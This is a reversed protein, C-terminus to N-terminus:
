NDLVREGPDKRRQSWSCAEILTLDKSNLSPKKARISKHKINILKNGETRTVMATFDYSRGPTRCPGTTSWSSHLFLLILPNKYNDAVCLFLTHTRKQKKLNRLAKACFRWPPRARTRKRRSAPQSPSTKVGVSNM